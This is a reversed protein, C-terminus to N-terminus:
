VHSNSLHWYRQYLSLCVVLWRRWRHYKVWSSSHLQLLWTTCIDRLYMHLGYSYPYTFTEMLVCIKHKGKVSHQRSTTGIHKYSPVRLGIGSTLRAGDLIVRTQYNSNGKSVVQIYNVLLCWHQGELLVLRLQSHWQKMNQSAADVSLRM